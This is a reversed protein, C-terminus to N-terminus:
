SLPTFAPRLRKLKATARVTVRHSVRGLATPASSTVPSFKTYTSCWRERVSRMMKSKTAGRCPRGRGVSGNGASPKSSARRKKKRLRPAPAHRLCVIRSYEARQSRRSSQSSSPGSRTAVKTGTATKQPRAALLSREKARASKESCQAAVERKRRKKLRNKFRVSMKTCNPAGSGHRLTMSGFM